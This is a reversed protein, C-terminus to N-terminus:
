SATTHSFATFVPTCLVRTTSGEGRPDFKTIRFQGVTASLVAQNLQMAGTAGTLVTYFGVCDAQTSAASLDAELEMGPYAPIISLEYKAVTANDAAMTKVEDAFGLVRASTSCALCLGSAETVADGIAFVESNKGIRHIPAVPLAKETRFHFGFM